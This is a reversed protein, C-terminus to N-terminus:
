LGGTAVAAVTLLNSSSQLPTRLLLPQATYQVQRMALSYICFHLYGRLHTRRAAEFWDRTSPRRRICRTYIGIGISSGARTGASYLKRPGQQLQLLSASAADQDEAFTLKRNRAVRLWRHKSSNHALIYVQVDIVWIIATSSLQAYLYVLLHM